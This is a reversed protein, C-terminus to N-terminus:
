KTSLRSHKQFECGALQTKLSTNEDVLSDVISELDRYASDRQAIAMSDTHYQNLATPCELGEYTCQGGVKRNTCAQWSMGIIGMAVLATVGVFLNQFFTKM